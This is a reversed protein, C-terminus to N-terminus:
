IVNNSDSRQCKVESQRKLIGKERSSHLGEDSTSLHALVWFLSTPVEPLLLLQVAEPM